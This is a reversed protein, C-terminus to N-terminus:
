FQSPTHPPINSSADADGHADDALLQGDGSAGVLKSSKQDVEMKRQFKLPAKEFSNRNAKTEDGEEVYSKIREPM